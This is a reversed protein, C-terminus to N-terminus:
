YELIGTTLGGSHLLLGEITMLCGINQKIVIKM